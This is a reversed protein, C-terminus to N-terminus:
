ARALEAIAQTYVAQEKGDTVDHREDVVAGVEQEVEDAAVGEALLDSRKQHTLFSTSSVQEFILHSCHAKDSSWIFRPFHIEIM